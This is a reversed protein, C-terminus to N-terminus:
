FVPLRVMPAAADLKKLADLAWFRADQSLGTKLAERLPAIAPAGAAGFRSLLSAAQRSRVHDQPNRVMGVLPMLLAHAEVSSPDILIIARVAPMPRFPDALEVRAILALNPLAPTAALGLKGIAAPITERLIGDGTALADLLPGLSEQPPKWLSGFAWAIEAKEVPDTAVKLRGLLLPYAEPDEPWGQVLARIAALRVTLSSDQAGYERFLASGGGSLRELRALTWLTQARVEPAAAKIMRNLSQRARKGQPGIAAQAFPDGNALPTSLFTDHLVGVAGIAAIQVLANPDDFVPILASTALEIESGLDGNRVGGHRGIGDALGRAAARRVRWDADSMGGILAPIARPLDDRDVVRLSEAGEVRKTADADGLATIQNSVWAREVSSHQRNFLWASLVVAVLAILLMLRAVTIRM